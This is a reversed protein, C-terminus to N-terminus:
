QSASMADFDKPEDKSISKLGCIKELQAVIIDILM